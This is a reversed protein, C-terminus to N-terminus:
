QKVTVWQQLKFELAREQPATNGMLWWARHGDNLLWQANEQNTLNTHGRMFSPEQGFELEKM